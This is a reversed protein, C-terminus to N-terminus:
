ILDKNQLEKHQKYFHVALETAIIAQDGDALTGDEKLKSKFGLIKQAADDLLAMTSKSARRKEYMNRLTKGTFELEQQGGETFWELNKNGNILNLDVNGKIGTVSGSDTYQWLDCAYKSKTASYRPIWLFDYNKITNMRYPEYFHHGTYFGVKIDLDKLYDIFSQTAEVLQHISSTTQEEVDVVYFLPNFPKARNYFDEAQNLAESKNTYTVYIYVGFPIRNEQCGEINQIYKRDIISTGYQTRM